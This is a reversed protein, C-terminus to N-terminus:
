DGIFQHRVSRVTPQAPLSKLTDDLEIFDESLLVLALEQPHELPESAGLELTEGTLLPSLNDPLCASLSVPGAAPPPAAPAAAPPTVASAAPTAPSTATPTVPTVPAAAPTVPAAAPTVPTAAPTVPAAAPTVPAAAPTVPAAAPTVPTAAPAAAPAPSTPAATLLDRGEADTLIVTADGQQRGTVRATVMCQPLAAAAARQAASWQVGGGGAPRWDLRARVAQRPWGAFRAPLPALEGASLRETNGWDVFRM